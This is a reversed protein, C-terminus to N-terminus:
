TMVEPVASNTSVSSSAAAAAAAAAAPSSCSDHPASPTVPSGNSSTPGPSAKPSAGKQKLSTFGNAPRARVSMRVSLRLRATRARVSM